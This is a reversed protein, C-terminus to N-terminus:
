KKISYFIKLIVIIVSIPILFFLMTYFTWSTDIYEEMELFYLLLSYGFFHPIMKFILNVFDSLKTPHPKTLYYGLLLILVPIVITYVYFM